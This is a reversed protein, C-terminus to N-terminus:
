KWQQFPGGNCAHPYIDRSNGDLCNSTWVNKFSITGNTNRIVHWRQLRDYPEDTFDCPFAWIDSIGDALCRGTRANSLSITGDGHRIVHWRQYLGDNPSHPYVAGDDGSDLRYGTAHNTFRQTTTAAHTLTSEVLVAAICVAVLTLVTLLRKM